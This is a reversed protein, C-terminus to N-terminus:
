KCGLECILRKEGEKENALYYKTFAYLGFLFLLFISLVVLEQQIAPGFGLDQQWGAAKHLIYVPLFVESPIKTM